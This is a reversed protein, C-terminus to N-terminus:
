PSHFLESTVVAEIIDRLRYDNPKTAELISEIADRDYIGCRRGLAYSMLKTVFSRAFTDVNSLLITRLGAIDDFTKNGPLTGSPDIPIRGEYESRWQGIADFNELAFGLPDIKRHCDYCAPNDRHKQLQERITQTGRVDPDLPEVDPPPAHPPTGLFYELLWVGRVVPSTDIGNASVTLISAHGLIGRRRPDTQDIRQFNFGPRVALGYLEALSRDVFTFDSDLFGRIPLNNDILWHTFLETERRMSRQLDKHYYIRFRTRDPPMSGLAHLNLWADLFSSVMAESRRDALMRRVQKVLVPKDSLQKSEALGLLEDDPPASWLFYALRSAIAYDSLTPQDNSAHNATSNELTTRIQRTEDLFLFSPSCLVAKIADGLAEMSTRGILEQQQALKVLQDVEDATAPRRFARTAVRRLHKTLLEQSIKSELSTGQKTLSDWDDGLLARHSPMPGDPSLPGRISINDIRIHPLHGDRIVERRNLVIGGLPSFRDPYKRKIGAWLERVDMLGNRFVFRPSFGKDLWVVARYKDVGDQLDSEWLLPEVPQPLHLKGAELNGAVIGLRFPEHRDRHLFKDDYPHDRNRADAEFELQYFGDHPAGPFGRIPGYAGEPKDAQMVDYLIIYEFDYLPGHVQDIEPQQRFGNSFFWTQEVPKLLQGLSKEVAKEASQLYAALLHGSVVLADGQNDLNEARQDAPFGHEPRYMLVNLGLVDAVSNRYERANLRRLITETRVDRRDRFSKLARNFSGIAELKQNSPPQEADEPPMASLNLQDVVEQLLVLEEEGRIATLQDGVFLRQFDREGDPASGSHCKVCYKKLFQAPAYDASNAPSWVAAITLICAFIISKPRAVCSHM